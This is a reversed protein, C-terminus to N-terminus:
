SEGSIHGTAGCISAFHDFHQWLQGFRVTGLLRLRGMSILLRGISIESAALVDNRRGPTSEVM